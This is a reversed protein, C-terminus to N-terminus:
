IADKQKKYNEYVIELINKYTLGRYDCNDKYTNLMRKLVCGGHCIPLKDCEYCKDPTTYTLFQTHVKNYKVGEALSGVKYKEDGLVEWCKYLDGSPHIIYHNKSIAMCIAEKPIPYFSEIYKAHGLECIKQNFETIINAFEIWNFCKSRYHTNPLNKDATVLDFYILMNNQNQNIWKKERVFYEILTQMNEYNTKDVNVRISINFLDKISDINSTIIDFSSEGSKLKRRKDHVEKTGDITIQVDKVLCKESLVLATEYDLLVGNTVVSAKYPINAAKCLDILRFSLEQIIEKELLPEGGFWTVDLRQAGDIFKRTFEVVLDMTEKTMKITKGKSEFCYQCIMNCDMTPVITLYKTFKDSYRLINEKLKIIGLEDIDDDIIFGNEIMVSIHKKVDNDLNDVDINEIREYVRKVNHKLIGFAGTFSNFILSDGNEIDNIINYRSKKYGM